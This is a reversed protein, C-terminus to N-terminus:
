SGLPAVIRDKKLDSDYIKDDRCLTVIFYNKGELIKELNKYALDFSSDKHKKLYERKKVDGEFGTLEKDKKEMQSFDEEMAEGIGVLVMDAKKIIDKLQTEKIEM